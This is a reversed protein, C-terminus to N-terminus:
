EGELVASAKDIQATVAALVEALIAIQPETEDHFREELAERVGPLTKVGYGTYYGPAYIHHKYWPRRPLGEPRTMARETRMLIANLRALDEPALEMWRGHADDFRHASAKLADVANRLPAFNFHPVPAKPEPVVFPKTPDFWAEYIGDAILKNEKETDERKEDALEMVEELYREVSAAFRTFEFPLLRANALRLVARGTVQAAARVYHFGPDVFRTYHDYSDYISHYSGGQGEGSFRLDLAAIGAHQIFPTYDSGSGMAALHVDDSEEARERVDDETDDDLLLRARLRQNAPIGKQPDIVARAIENVMAELTHSGNARLFGRQISDSNIYAVAHTDLERAHHEVWDTSGLLAPEEADWAAFIVSRRPRQGATALEGIARAEEMLSVMGSIPDAAGNVWADHHNGRIIWQDPFEAGELRAIVNRAPKLSWEFELRLRVKAPGPGVHYTIPLAGRWRKPAVPGGLAELIPLADSYSVPLVPISMITEADAIALREADETAGVNPTLPDGPRRPMDLVSGRQAGAAGRFPGDPYDDGRFYGDDEPDSYLIVGVAGHEVAVKPKIGRWSGGYRAIVIKGKVDIGLRELDEYDEPIGQNVFVVEATVDGDASYANYIPLQENKQGSTADAALTPEELAATFATPAIMELARLTPTPMLVHYTEIAVEYGWERFRAAIFEAVERGYPSGVHHPRASLHKMWRDLNETSLKADFSAELALEAESGAEDFGLITPTDGTAPAASACAFMAAAMIVTKKM